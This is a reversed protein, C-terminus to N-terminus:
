EEKIIQKIVNAREIEQEYRSLKKGVRLQLNAPKTNLILKSVKLDNIENIIGLDTGLKINSLLEVAEEESMKRANSLVGFDRYLKDELDLGKKALYKRAMREQEIVKGSILKLNKTIEKETVGITQNNSIEFFDGDLKSDEGYLSEISMGLSNVASLIKRINGTINLAILHSLVSIKLGTGVNTPCATLYGYKKNFSYPLLGEIKQDIEIALNMLNELDLGSSFVQLKIHDEENIVICINEEDNIVLASYPNKSKAFESTILHKEVLAEKNLDDLDKLSIFKLGYGISPVIEKVKDYVTKLEEEKCKQVFPVGEINRSLRVRSSIIVDSDKGSQLYWNM